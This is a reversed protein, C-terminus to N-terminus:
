PSSTHIKVRPPDMLWFNKLVCKNSIEDFSFQWKRLKRSKNELPGISMFSLHFQKSDLHGTSGNAAPQAILFNWKSIKLWYCNQIQLSANELPTRPCAARWHVWPSSKFTWCMGTLQASSSWPPFWNGTVSWRLPVLPVCRSGQMLWASASSPSNVVLEPQASRSNSALEGTRTTYQSRTAFSPSFSFLCWVLVSWGWSLRCGRPSCWDELLLM